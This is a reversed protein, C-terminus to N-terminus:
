HGTAAPVVSETSETGYPGVPALRFMAYHSGVLHTDNVARARRWMRAAMEELLPRHAPDGALNTREHPDAALDYLEDVDFGNFVYKHRAHWVIRQTFFYRQGHFEAYGDAWPSDELDTVRHELLPVLSHGDVGEIPPTETLEAITPALDVLSVLAESTRGRAAVGPASVVLPINYVPEYAPAGKFFLGYDGLLDGHDATYIVITRERQGTEDLAQLIRGVQEDVFTCEAYYCAIAERVHRPELDRWVERLRRQIGPKDRLDDAYSIPLPIEDVRYREFTHRPTVYPDHPEHTSVVCFWPRQAAAQARIFDIGKSYLFYPELAEPPDETVGYFQLDRYGPQRVARRLSLNRERPLGLQARHAALEPGGSTAIYEDFGFRSLDNSREVHWKGFYAGAYGADHLRQSWFPLGARLDARYAPVSHTCDVMGHRSPYLGTFLSARSPSCVANTTHARAFRVGTAALRDLHPTRCPGSPDLTDGRQQDAILLLVNPRTSM